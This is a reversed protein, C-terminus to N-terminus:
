EVRKEVQSLPSSAQLAYQSQGASKACLLTGPSAVIDGALRVVPQMLYCYQKVQLQNQWRPRCETADLIM